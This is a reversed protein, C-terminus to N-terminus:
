RYDDASQRRFRHHDSTVISPFYQHFQECASIEPIFFDNDGDPGRYYRDASNKAPSFASFRNKQEDGAM